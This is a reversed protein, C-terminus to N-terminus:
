FCVCWVLGSIIFLRFRRIGGFVLCYEDLEKEVGELGRVVGVEGLCGRERLEM